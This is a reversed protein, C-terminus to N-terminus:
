TRAEALKRAEALLTAMADRRPEWGLLRRAPEPDFTQSYALTALTYRTLVPEEARGRSLAEAVHALPWALAMPLEVLRPRQGLADALRLAVDRVAIPQGGSVNIARGSIGDAREEAALIAEAADRLDTLEILARGGRPLPMRRRSALQALRPLIVRDGPGVLARPRLACIAFGPAASALVLREAALKTRAYANLPADAPLDDVGIGVRDRLTAFISPSSVFVFRAAGAAKAAGLLRDTATINAGVFDADAGWSASLAAAHIVSDIGDVLAAPDGTVLDAPVFEAGLMSLGAGAALDRGTARVTHGRAIAAEVLAHGLGGTAGTILLHRSM